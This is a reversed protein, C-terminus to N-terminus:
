KKRNAYNSTTTRRIVNIKIKGPYIVNEEVDHAVKKAINLAQEDEVKDSDVFVRVERGASLAYVKKVGKPKLALSELTRIKELYKELTEQRAGPRGASIADAAIVIYDVPRIQPVANHHAHAAHVIEESFGYKELIEKSLIDHPRNEQKDIAKGIDHFFCALEAERVDCGLESAIMRGFAAVEFSHSLINQGFSTRFKLRGILQYFDDPYGELDLKKAAKKGIRVLEKNMDEQAEDLKRVIVDQNVNPERLLAKVALYAIRQELLNYHSVIITNPADNFIVTAETLEEFFLINEADLGVIKGKNRDKPVSIASYKKEVSSEKAYKQIVDKIVLKAAKELNEKLFEERKQVMVEGEYVLSDDLEKKIQEKVQEKSVGQKKLLRDFVQQDFQEIESELTEVEKRQNELASFMQDNREERSNLRNEKTEVATGLRKIQSDLLDINEQMQQHQQEVEKEAESLIRDCEKLSDADLKEVKLDFDGNDIAKASKILFASVIFGVVGLGIPLIFDEIGM